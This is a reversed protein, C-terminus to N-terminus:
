VNVKWIVPKEEPANEALWYQGDVRCALGRDVLSDLCAREGHWLSAARVPGSQLRDIWYRQNHGLRRSTYHM